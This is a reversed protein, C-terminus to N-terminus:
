GLQSLAVLDHSEMTEPPAETELAECSLKDRVGGQLQEQAYEGM